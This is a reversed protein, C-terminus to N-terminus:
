GCPSGDVRREPSTEEPYEVVIGTSQLPSINSITAALLMFVVAVATIILLVRGQKVQRKEM